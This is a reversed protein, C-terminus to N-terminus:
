WPAISFRRVVIESIKKAHTVIMFHGGEAIVENAQCLPLLKDKGEHLQFIFRKLLQTIIVGVQNGIM